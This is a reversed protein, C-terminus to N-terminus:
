NSLYLLSWLPLFETNKNPKNWLIDLHRSCHKPCLWPAIFVSLFLFPFQFPPLSPLSATRVWESHLGSQFIIIVMTPWELLGRFTTVFSRLESICLPNEMYPVHLWPLFQTIRLVGYDIPLLSHCIHVVVHPIHSDKNKTLSALHVFHCITHSWKYLTCALWYHYFASFPQGSGLPPPFPPRCLPILFRQHLRCIHETDQHYNQLLKCSNFSM